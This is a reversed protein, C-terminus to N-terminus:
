TLMKKQFCHVVYVTDKLNLLYISKFADGDFELAIEFVGTGYRKFPKTKSYKEGCQAM